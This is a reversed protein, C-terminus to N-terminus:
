RPTTMSAFPIHLYTGNFVEFLPHVQGLRRDAWDWLAEPVGCGLAVTEVRALLPKETRGRAVLM